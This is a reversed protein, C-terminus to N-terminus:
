EAKIDAAKAVGAWLETEVAITKAFTESNGSDPTIAMAALRTRVAGDQLTRALEEQLKKVIAPPTAVPALLGTWLTFEFNPVGAEAMTPVDPYAPARKPGTTAILRIKGSKILGDASSPDAITMTVDGAAVATSSENAGKYPIRQLKTGTRLNFLESAFTFSAASSAYNAKAPNAKASEVLEKVSKIPGNGNVVVMLPFAGILGVPAFDKQPAYSLKAYLAPNFVLPGSPGMFLTYGDPASKAVYEAAIISAAGPKNEILVPQGLNEALKQGVIRMIVDNGGGAAYGVIIRVPKVPFSQAQAATLSAIGVAIVAACVSSHIGSRVAGCFFNKNASTRNLAIRKADGKNVCIDVM